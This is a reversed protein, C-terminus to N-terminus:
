PPDRGPESGLVARLLEGVAALAPGIRWRATTREGAANSIGRLITLPVGARACALAVAFGEMDEAAAHPHRARRRAAEAPSASAACVTLLEADAGLAPVALPLEEEIASGDAAFAQPFGLARPGRLGEGEGAGVGELAVRAFALASGVPHRAPDYTGAIGALIVARPALRAILEAAAAAAALPGFGALALLIQGPGPGGAALLGAREEATPVLLLRPAGPSPPRLPAM